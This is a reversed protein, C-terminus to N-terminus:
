AAASRHVAASFQAFEDAIAMHSLRREGASFAPLLPIGSNVMVAGRRLVEQKGVIDGTMNNSAFDEKFYISNNRRQPM